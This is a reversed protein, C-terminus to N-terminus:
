LMGGFGTREIQARQEAYRAASSRTLARGLRTAFRPASISIERVLAQALMTM